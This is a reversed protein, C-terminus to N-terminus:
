LQAFLYIFLYIGQAKDPGLSYFREQQHLGPSTKVFKSKRVCGQKKGGQGASHKRGQQLKVIRVCRGLLFRGVTISPRGCSFYHVVGYFLLPQDIEM